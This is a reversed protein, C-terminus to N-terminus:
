QKPIIELHNFQLTTKKLSGTTCSQYNAPGKEISVSTRLDVEKVQVGNKHNIKFRIDRFEIPNNNSSNTSGMYDSLKRKRPNQSSAYNIGCNILNTSREM